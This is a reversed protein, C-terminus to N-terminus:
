HKKGRGQKSFDSLNQSIGFIELPMELMESFIGLSKDAHFVAHIDNIFCLKRQIIDYKENKSTFFIHLHFCKIRYIVQFNLIARSFKTEAM